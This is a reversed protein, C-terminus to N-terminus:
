MVSHGATQRIIPSRPVSVQSPSFAGTIANCSASCMLIHGGGVGAVDAVRSAQVLHERCPCGAALGVGAVRVVDPAMAIHWPAMALARRPARM